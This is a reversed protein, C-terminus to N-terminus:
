DGQWPIRKLEKETVVNCVVVNMMLMETDSLVERLRVERVPVDQEAPAHSCRLHRLLLTCAVM